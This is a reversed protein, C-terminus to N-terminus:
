FKLRSCKQPLSSTSYRMFVNPKKSTRVFCKIASLLLDVRCFVLFSLLLVVMMLIISNPKSLRKTDLNYSLKPSLLNNNPFCSLPLAMFFPLKRSSPKKKRLIRSRVASKTLLWGQMKSFCTLQFLSNFNPYKVTQM